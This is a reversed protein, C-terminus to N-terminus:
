PLEYPGKAVAVGDRAQAHQAVARQRAACRLTHPHPFRPRGHAQMRQLSPSARSPAKSHEVAAGHSGIAGVLRPQLEPELQPPSTHCGQRSHSGRVPLQRRYWLGKAALEVQRGIVVPGVTAGRGPGLRDVDVGGDGVGQGRGADVPGEINGEMSHWPWTCPWTVPVAWNLAGVARGLDPGTAVPTAVTWM